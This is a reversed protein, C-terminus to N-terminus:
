SGRSTSDPRTDSSRSADAILQDLKRELRALRGEILCARADALAFGAGVVKELNEATADFHHTQSEHANDLQDLRQALQAFEQQLAKLAEAAADGAESAACLFESSESPAVDDQGALLTGTPM